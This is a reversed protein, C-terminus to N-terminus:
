NKCGQCSANQEGDWLREVMANFLKTLNNEGRQYEKYIYRNVYEVREKIQEKAQGAESIKELQKLHEAKINELTNYLNANAELSINLDSEAKELKAETTELRLYLVLIVGGCLALSVYFFASGKFFSLVNSFISFM